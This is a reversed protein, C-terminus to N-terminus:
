KLGPIAGGKVWKERVAQHWCVGWLGRGPRSPNGESDSDGTGEGVPGAAKQTTPLTQGLGKQQPVLLHKGLCHRPLGWQTRESRQENM